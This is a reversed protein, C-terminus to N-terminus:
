CEFALHRSQYHAGILHEQVESRSRPTRFKYQELETTIADLDDEKGIVKGAIYFMADRSGEVDLVDARRVVERYFSSTLASPVFGTNETEDARLRKSSPPYNTSM